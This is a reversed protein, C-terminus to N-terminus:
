FPIEAGNDDFNPIDNFEGANFDGAGEEYQAEESDAPDVEPPPQAAPRARAAVKTSAPARRPQAPEPPADAPDLAEGELAAPIAPRRAAPAAPRPPAARQAPAAPRAGQAPAATRQAPAATRAAPAATRAAPAPQRAPQTAPAAARPAASRINRPTPDDGAQSAPSRVPPRNTGRVPPPFDQGGDQEDSGGEQILSLCADVDQESPTKVQRELDILSGLIHDVDYNNAELDFAKPRVIVEYETFGNAGKYRKIAVNYGANLDVLEDSQEEALFNLLYNIITSPADLIQVKGDAKKM